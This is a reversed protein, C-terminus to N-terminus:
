ERHFRHKGADASDFGGDRAARTRAAGVEVAVV